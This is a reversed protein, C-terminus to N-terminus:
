YGAFAKGAVDDPDGGWDDDDDWGDSSNGEQRSWPSCDPCFIEDDIEHIGSTDGSFMYIDESVEGNKVCSDCSM